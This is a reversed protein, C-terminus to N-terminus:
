CGGYRYVDDMGAIGHNDVENMSLLYQHLDQQLKEEFDNFKM